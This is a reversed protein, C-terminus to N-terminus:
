LAIISWSFIFILFHPWILCLMNWITLVITKGTTMYPHSPPGSLLSLVLSSISEFQPALSSEQSDRPCCPSWIQHQSLSLTPSSPLSHSPQIADGVWHVWHVHIQAFEPLYHLVSVGPMSDDMPDCLTLCSKTVVIQQNWIEGYLRSLHKGPSGLHCRM